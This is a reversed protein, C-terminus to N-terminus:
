DVIALEGDGATAAALLPLSATTRRHSTASLHPCGDSL